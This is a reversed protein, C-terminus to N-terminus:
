IFGSDYGIVEQEELREVLWVGTLLFVRDTGGNRKM